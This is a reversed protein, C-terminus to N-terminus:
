LGMERTLLRHAQEIDASTYGPISRDLQQLLDMLAQKQAMHQVPIQDLDVNILWDFLVVADATWLSLATMDSAAMRLGPTGSM